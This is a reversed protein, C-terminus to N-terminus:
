FRGALFAGGPAFGLGVAPSSDSPATFYLVLGGAVLVGGAILAVTSVTASSLTSNRDSVSQSSCDTHSPCEKQATSWSSSAMAGFVAGVAVGVVGAGGVALGLVRRGHGGGSAPPEAPMQVPPPPTVPLIVPPPPVAPAMAITEHRDREGEHLILTETVPAQGAVEFTFVHSGPDLALANGELSEALVAGDMTVRVASMEHGGPGTVVFVVTPIAATVMEMRRACEQRIEAPCSPAACTVLEAKAQRLRHEAQLKLSAETAALCEAVQPEAHARSAVTGALLVALIVFRPTRM